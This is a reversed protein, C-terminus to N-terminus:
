TLGCENKFALLYMKVTNVCPLPLINQAKLFKYINTLVKRNSEARKVSQYYMLLKPLSMMGWYDQKHKM